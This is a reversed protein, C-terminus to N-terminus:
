RIAGSARSQMRDAVFAYVLAVLVGTWLGNFVHLVSIMLPTHFHCFTNVISVQGIAGIVLLPIGWKPRRLSVLAIGLLLAPNGILFDKTRPRVVLLHDLIARVRLEVSSVGVGPDNGSRALLFAFAALGVIAALLGGVMLPQNWIEVARRQVRAKAARLGGRSSIDLAFILLVILIAGAQQLKIGRFETVKVSGQVSSLLGVVFLAGIVSIASMSLYAPIQRLVARWLAGKPLPQGAGDRAGYRRDLADRLVAFALVPMLLAGQLAVIQRGIDKLPLAVDLVGLLLLAVMPLGSVPWVYTAVLLTAAAVGLGMLCRMAAKSEYPTFPVAFNLTMSPRDDTLANAIQNIYQVNANVPPVPAGPLLRVYLCRINREQAARVFRDVADSPGMRSMEVPNISHVRVFEGKLAAALNEEGKQKGLEIQGYVLGNATLIDATEKVSGPYGLVQDGGFVILRGGAMKLSEAQGRISEPNAGLFNAPRLVPEMHAGRVLAIVDDAFGVGLGSLEPWAARVTVDEDSISPTVRWKLKLAAELRARLAGNPIRLVTTMEAPLGESLVPASRRSRRRGTSAPEPAVEVAGITQMEGLTDENIAVGRAGAQYFRRLVQDVPAGTEDALSRVEEWDLVIEVRHNAAEVKWRKSAVWLAPLIGVGVLVWLVLRTKARL